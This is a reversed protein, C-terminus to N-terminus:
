QTKGMFSDWFSEDDSVSDIKKLPKPDFFPKMTIIPKQSAVFELHLRKDLSLTQDVASIIIRTLLSETESETTTLYYLKPFPNDSPVKAKTEVLRVCQPTLLKMVNLAITHTVIHKELIFEKSRANSWESIFRECSLYEKNDLRADWILAMNYLVRSILHILVSSVDDEMITNPTEITLKFDIHSVRFYEIISKITPSIKALNRHFIELGIHKFLIEAIVIHLLGKLKPKAYEDHTQMARIEEAMDHYLPGIHQLDVTIDSTYRYTDEFLLALITSKASEFTSWDHQKKM